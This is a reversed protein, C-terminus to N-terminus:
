AREGEARFRALAEGVAEATPQSRRQIARVLDIHGEATGIAIEWIYVYKDDPDLEVGVAQMAARYRAVLETDVECEIAVQAFVHRTQANVWMAKDQEHRRLRERYVPDAYNPERITEGEGYDITQAPAAPPAHLRDYEKLLRDTLTFPVKRIKLVIGTDACVFETLGGSHSNGDGNHNHNTM